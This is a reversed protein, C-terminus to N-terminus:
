NICFATTPATKALIKVPMIPAIITSFFHIISLLPIAWEENPPM